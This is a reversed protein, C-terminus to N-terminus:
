LSINRLDAPKSSKDWARQFGEQRLKVNGPDAFSGKAILLDADSLELWGVRDVLVYGYSEVPYQPHTQQIEILSPIRKQLSLLPHSYNVIARCDDILIRAHSIPNRRAFMSFERIFSEDAFLEHQLLPSYILVMEDAQAVISLLASMIDAQKHWVQLKSDEGLILQCATVTEAAPKIARPQYDHRYKAHIVEIGQKDPISAFPIPAALGLGLFVNESDAADVGLSDIALSSFGQAQYYSLWHPLTCAKLMKVGAARTYAILYELLDKFTSGNEEAFPLYIGITSHEPHFWGLGQPSDGGILFWSYDAHMTSQLPCLLIEQESHNVGACRYHAFFSLVQEETASSVEATMM